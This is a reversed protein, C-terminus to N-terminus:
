REPSPAARALAADRSPALAFLERTGTVELLRAVAPQANALVLEGGQAALAERTRLLERLVSSDLFGVEAVDLVVARPTAAAALAAHLRERTEGVTAVDLEGEVRLLAVGPPAPLQEIAFRPPRGDPPRPDSPSTGM